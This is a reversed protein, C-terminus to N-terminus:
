KRTDIFFSLNVEHATGFVEQYNGTAYDFGYGIKLSNRDDGKNPQWYFGAELHVIKSTSFGAGAWFKRQYQYRTNFDIQAPANPVYKVWISPEIFTLEDFYKYYGAIGYFHREQQISFTGDPNEFNGTNGLLRPASVGGYFVDGTFPGDAFQKYYFVGFGVDPLIQQQNGLPIAEDNVHFPRLDDIKVQYQLAGFTLGVSFAGYFPDDGFLAALKGYVGNTIIPNTNFSLAYGGFALDFAGKTQMIYEGKAFLSRPAGEINSVNSRYSLGTQFNYEQTLYDPSITAPNIFSHYDRYQTFVPLQQAEASSNFFTLFALLFLYKCCNYLM